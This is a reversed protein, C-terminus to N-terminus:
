GHLFKLGFFRIPKGITKILGIVNYKQKSTTELKKRIKMATQFLVGWLLSYKGRQTILSVATLFVDYGYSAVNEAFMVVYLITKAKGTSCIDFVNEGTSTCHVALMSYIACERLFSHFSSDEQPLAVQQLQFTDLLAQQGFLGQKVKDSKGHTLMCCGLNNQHQHIAIPKILTKSM